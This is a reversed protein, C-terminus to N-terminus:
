KKDAMMKYIANNIENNAINMPNPPPKKQACEGSPCSQTNQQAKKGGGFLNGLMGGSFINAIGSNLNNEGGEGKPMANMLSMITSLQENDGGLMELMSQPSGGNQMAAILKTMKEMDMKQGDKGNMMMAMLMMPNFNM